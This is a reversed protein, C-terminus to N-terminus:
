QRFIFNIIRLLRGILIFFVIIKILRKADIDFSANNPCLRMSIFFVDYKIEKYKLREQGHNCQRDIM